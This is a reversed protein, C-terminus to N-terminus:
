SLTQKPKERGKGGSGGGASAHVSLYNLFLFLTSSLVSPRLSGSASEVSLTYGLTPSLQMVRVDHGSGFDPSLHEVLQAVWYSFRLFFFFPIALIKLLFSIFTM